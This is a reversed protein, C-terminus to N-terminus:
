IKGIVQLYTHYYLYLHLFIFEVQMKKSIKNRKVNQM